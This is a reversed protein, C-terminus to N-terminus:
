GEGEEGRKSVLFFFLSLPFPFPSSFSFFSITHKMSPQASKIKSRSLMNSFPTLCCIAPAHKQWGILSLHFMHSAIRSVYLHRDLCCQVINSQLQVVLSENWHVDSDFHRQEILLWLYFLVM